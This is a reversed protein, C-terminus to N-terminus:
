PAPCRTGAVRGACPRSTSRRNRLPVQHFRVIRLVSPSCAFSWTNMIGPASCPFRGDRPAARMVGWGPRCPVTDHKSHYLSGQARGAPARVRPACVPAPALHCLALTSTERVGCPSACSAIRDLISFPSMSRGAPFITSTMWRMILRDRVVCRYVVLSFNDRLCATTDSIHTADHRTTSYVSKLYISDIPPRKHKKYKRRGRRCVQSPGWM